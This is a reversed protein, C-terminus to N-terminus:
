GDLPIMALTPSSFTREGDGEDEVCESVSSAWSGVTRIKKSLLSADM